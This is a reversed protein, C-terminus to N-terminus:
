TQTRNRLLALVRNGTKQSQVQLRTGQMVPLILCKVDWM